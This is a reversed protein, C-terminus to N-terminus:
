DMVQQAEMIALTYRKCSSPECRCIAEMCSTHKRQSTKGAQSSVLGLSESIHRGCIVIWGAKLLSDARLSYAVRKRTIGKTAPKQQIQLCKHGDHPLEFFVAEEMSVEAVVHSFDAAYCVGLYSTRGM